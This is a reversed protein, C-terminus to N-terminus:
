KRIYIIAKLQLDKEYGTPVEIEKQIFKASNQFLYNKIHINVHDTNRFIFVDQKEIEALFWSSALSLEGPIFEKLIKDPYREHLYFYPDPIAQLYIRKKSIVANEIQKYYEYTKNPTHILFYNAYFLWFLLIINILLTAYLPFHSYKEKKAFLFVIMLMLPPVLHVVYWIESSFYVALFILMLWFLLLRFTSDKKYRNFYYGAAMGVLLLHFLKLYNFRYGSVIIKIRDIIGFTRLLESKRSLQAGFQLLFISFDNFIYVAWFLVPLMCIVLYIIINTLVNNRKEILIFLVVAGYVAGFPHSLFSFASFLGSFFVSYKEGFRNKEFLSGIALVGFLLSMGEMRVSHNVLIFFYDTGVLILILNGISKSFLNRSLRLLILIAIFSIVSGFFRAIFLSSGFLKLVGALSLMYLPPMWFTYREMGPILGSLVTTALRGSVSFEAAPNFFLVEDPWVIPVSDSLQWSLLSYFLGFILIQLYYYRDDKGDIFKRFLLLQKKKPNM